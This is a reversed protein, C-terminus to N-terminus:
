RQLSEDAVTLGDDALMVALARERKRDRQSM